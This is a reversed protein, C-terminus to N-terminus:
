PSIMDSVAIPSLDNELSGKSLNKNLLVPTIMSNPNEKTMSDKSPTTENSMFLARHLAQVLDTEEEEEPEVDDVALDEEESEESNQEFDCHESNSQNCANEKDAAREMDIILQLAKLTSRSTKPDHFTLATLHDNWVPTVQHMRRVYYIIATALASSQVTRFKTDIICKNSLDLMKQKMSNTVDATIQMKKNSSPFFSKKCPIMDNESFLGLQMQATLFASPVRAINLPFLNSLNLIIFFHNNKGNLKWGMKKLTWLEYYLFTDNPIEQQTIEEIRKLGPVHEEMENYKSAIIICSIALIQWEFRTFKENPQLRDLYAVAM